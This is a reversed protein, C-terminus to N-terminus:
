QVLRRQRVHFVQAEYRQQSLVVPDNGPVGRPMAIVKFHRALLPITGLFEVHSLPAQHLLLVAEGEGATVYHLQGGSLDIYHKKFAADKDAAGATWAALWVLSALLLRSRRATRM